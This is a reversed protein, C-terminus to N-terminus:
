RPTPQMPKNPRKVPHIELRLRPHKQGRGLQDVTGGMRIAEKSLVFSAVYGKEKDDIDLLTTWAYDALKITASGGTDTTAQVARPTRLELHYVIPSDAPYYEYHVRFPVYAVPKDLNAESVTVTVDRFSHLSVTPLVCGGGTIVVGLAVSGLFLHSLLNM